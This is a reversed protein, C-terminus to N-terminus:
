RLRANWKIPICICLASDLRKFGLNVYSKRATISNLYHTPFAALDELVKIQAEGWLKKQVELDTEGQARKIEADAGSFHSFNRKGGGLFFEELILSAVPFRTAARLILPNSGEDNKKHFSPHAIVNLGIKIGVQRLQNQILEMPRRYFGRETIFVPDLTFGDPLGAEALLKKAKEPNHHYKLNEPVEQLGGVFMPPVVSYLPKAVDGGIFKIIEDRNVAYAIAQRVRLDNLPKRRSDMHLKMVTPPGYSEVIVDSDKVQDISRQERVVEMIDLEGAKFALTRSSSDPLFRFVIQEIKPKGRFYNDNRILVLREQPIHEKFVFPGTGIPNNKIKKGLKDVAKRSMVMGAQWDLVTPLFSLASAPKKLHIRVTYKDLAEIEAFNRYSKYYRNTKKHKARDLSFVIDDSTFEGFGGHFEVGRRLHFTWAKLDKSSEWSEALDPELQEPNVVGPVPRVLGNYVHDLVTKDVSNPGAMPDLRRIDRANIGYRLVSARAQVEFPTLAGLGLATGGLIGIGKLFTRRDVQKM